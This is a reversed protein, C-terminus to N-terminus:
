DPKTAFDKASGILLHWLLPNLGSTAIEPHQGLYWRTHFDPNPNYGKRAGFLLFHVVPPYIEQRGLLYERRYYSDDFLGSNKLYAAQPQLARTVARRSEFLDHTVTQTAHAFYHLREEADLAPWPRYADDWQPETFLADRGLWEQAVRRNSERFCDYIEQRETPSFLAQPLDKPTFKDFVSMLYLSELPRMDSAAYQECALKLETADRSFSTNARVHFYKEDMPIKLFHIFDSVTNSGILQSKEYVRVSIKARNFVNKILSLNLDYDCYHMLHQKIDKLHITTNMNKAIQRCWSDLLQDQRRLYIIIHVDHNAYIGYYKKLFDTRLDIYDNKTIIKGGNRINDRVIHHVPIVYLGENSIIYTANDNGIAEIDNFEQKSESMFLDYKHAFPITSIFINKNQLPEQNEKLTTQLATTGTKLIGMHIIINM